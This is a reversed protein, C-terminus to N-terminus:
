SILNVGLFVNGASTRKKLFQRELNASFTKSTGPDEGRLRAWEQWDAFAAASPLMAMQPIRCRETAWQAVMDQENFYEATATMITEPPQLGDRQWDLCGQIAWALIGSAEAMLAETLTSDPTPPVYCMPILNLRRAMAKDPNRLDPRHNGAIWLKFVPSFEFPDGRMVRASIKDGGTLAKIRSEAWPKGQETETVVVMRAGRLSALHTPHQDNRSVTFTDMMATTAYDGLIAAITGLLVSKGNGGPGWLFVFSHERNIGTLTYGIFRQLYSVLAEDGQTVERLFKLWTPCDGGPAVTTVKTFLDSRSHRRTQGTRLDVIGDPTNIIWPDADFADADRVHRQDSRALREIAAVTAASLVTRGLNAPVRSAAQLCVNRALDFVKLTTDPVWRCNDWRHWHSWAPIYVLEGDYRGSFELALM